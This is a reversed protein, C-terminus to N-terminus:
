RKKGKTKYKKMKDLLVLQEPQKGIQVLRPPVSANTGNPDYVPREMPRVRLKGKEALHIREKTVAIYEPM